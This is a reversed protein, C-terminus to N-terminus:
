RTPERAFVARSWLFGVLAIVCCWIVALTGSNDTPSGMLLGRLTEIMSTFPQYGAILRLGTPMSDTPVFASGIFPLLQLPLILNSAAEPGKAVLGVGVSLWILAFAMLAILGFAVIWETVGATPRFGVLLAVGIVLVVSLITRIVGAIVHGTLMSSRTIAMTRFRNIIGETMDMNVSIATSGAVAAVTMILIGPALYDVYAGNGTPGFLGDGLTGGLVFVFLLLFILPVFVVGVTLSPYRRAHLLNRRLMTKSDRVTHSMTSM